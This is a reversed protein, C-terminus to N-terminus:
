DVPADAPWPRRPSAAVAGLLADDGAADDGDGDM